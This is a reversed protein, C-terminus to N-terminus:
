LQGGKKSYLRVLYEIYAKTSDNNKLKRKRSM